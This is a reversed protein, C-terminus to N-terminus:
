GPEQREVVKMMELNNVSLHNFSHTNSLILVRPTPGAPRRLGSDAARVGLILVRYMQGRYYIVAPGRGSVSENQTLLPHCM